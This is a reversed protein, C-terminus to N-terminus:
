HQKSQFYRELIKYSVELLILSSALKLTNFQMKCDNKAEAKEIPYM